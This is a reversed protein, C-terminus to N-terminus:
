AEGVRVNEKEERRQNGRRNRAAGERVVSLEVGQV